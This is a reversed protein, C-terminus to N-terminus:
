LIKHIKKLKDEVLKIDDKVDVAYSNAEVEIMKIPINLDFFRLIEIDEISETKGKSKLKGFNLLQSRNFAYICIQKFYNKPKSDFSKFGPISLRSMYVLESNINTVVKPINLNNPDENDSLKAMANIVHEPNKIKCDIVQKIIQPDITPEDGQINLYIDANITNAVESIRDTGTLHKDSTMICNFGYDNVLNLISKNETAIYVNEKGLVKCSLEAVWIIMPKGLLKVLPKGKFRTSNYRAPIIGKIIM